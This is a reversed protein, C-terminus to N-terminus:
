GFRSELRNPQTVRRVIRCPQTGSFLVGGDPWFWGVRHQKQWRRYTDQTRSSLASVWQNGSDATNFSMNFPM